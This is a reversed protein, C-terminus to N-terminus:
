SIEAPNSRPRRGKPFTTACHKLLAGTQWQLYGQLRKAEPLGLTRAALFFVSLSIGSGFVLGGISTYSRWARLWTGAEYGLWGSGVGITVLSLWFGAGELRSTGYAKQSFFFLWAFSSWACIPALSALGPLGFRRTAWGVLVMVVVAHAASVLSPLRTNGLSYCSKELLATGAAAPIGLAFIRFVFSTEEVAEKAFLGRGFLVSVLERSMGCSVVAVPIALFLAMRVGDSRLRAFESRGSESWADSMKPFLVTALAGPAIMGLLQIKWAYGLVAITGAPLYSAARNMALVGLYGVGMTSLLPVARGVIEALERRYRLLTGVWPRGAEPKALPWLRGALLAVTVFSGIVPAVLLAQPSGSAISALLVLNYLLQGTPVVWFVKHAQLLGSAIGCWGLPLMAIGFSLLFLAAAKLGEPPLGPALWRALVPAVAASGAGALAGGVLFLTGLGLLFRWTEKTGNRHSLQAFFPIVVNPLIGWALSQAFVFLVLGTRYGDVLLGAGYRWALFLEVVFGSAPGLLSLVSLGAASRATGHEDGNGEEHSPEAGQRVSGRRGASVPDAEREAQLEGLAALDRSEVVMAEGQASKMREKSM